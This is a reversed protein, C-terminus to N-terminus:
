FLGAPLCLCLSPMTSAYLAPSTSVRPIRSFWAVPTFARASFPQFYCSSCRSSTAPTSLAGPFLVPHELTQLSPGQPHQLLRSDPHTHSSSVGVRLSKLFLTWPHWSGLHIRNWPSLVGPSSSKPRASQQPWLLVKGSLAPPPSSVLNAALRVPPTGWASLSCALQSSKHMLVRQYTCLEQGLKHWGARRALPSGDPCESSWITFEGAYPHQAPSNAEM